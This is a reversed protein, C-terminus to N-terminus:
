VGLMAKIEEARSGVADVRGDNSIFFMVDVKPVGILEAPEPEACGPFTHLLPGGGNTLLVDGHRKDTKYKEFAAEISAMHRQADDGHRDIKLMVDIGIKETIKSAILKWTGICADTEEAYLKVKDVFACFAEYDRITRSRPKKTEFVLIVKIPYEIPMSGSSPLPLSKLHEAYDPRTSFMGPHIYVKYRDDQVTEM